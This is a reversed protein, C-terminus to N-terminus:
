SLLAEYDSPLLASLRELWTDILRVGRENQFDIMDVGLIIRYTILLKSLQHGHWCEDFGYSKVGNEILTAHYARVLERESGAATAVDLNGSIFYALDVVGPGRYSGQWDFTTVQMAPADGRFCMNDLRYDGHALTRPLAALRDVVDLARADLFDGLADIAPFRRGFGSQFVPRGRRYLVHFWTKLWQIEALWSFEPEDVREWYAAHLVALNRLVSEAVKASCGAVQDGVPAPALDELLLVYRRRSRASLWRFLPMVLRILWAPWRELFAVVREEKGVFPNPDCDSYYLRPTRIPVREGLEEYFRIEREYAGGLEGLAKNQGVGIPFKGILSRPANPEPPDLSLRIRAITGVFGEGEGLIESTFGSVAAKRLVGRSRLASTLWERTLEDPRSPITL